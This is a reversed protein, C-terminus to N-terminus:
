AVQRMPPTLVAADDLLLPNSMLLGRSGSGLTTM